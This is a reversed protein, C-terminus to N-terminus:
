KGNRSIVPVIAEELRHTYSLQNSRWITTRSTAPELGTMWGVEEKEALNCAIVRGRHNLLIVSDTMYGM